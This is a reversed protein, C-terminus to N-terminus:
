LDPESKVLDIKPKSSLTRRANHPCCQAAQYSAKMSLCATTSSGCCSEAKYRAKIQTCSMPIEHQWVYLGCDIDSGIVTNETDGFAYVGWLGHWVVQIPDTENHTDFYGVEVPAVRDTIDFVRLGSVYNAQYLYNGVTMVNHTTAASESNLSVNVIEVNYLDTVNFVIIRSALGKSHQTSTDVNYMEDNLYAYQRSDDLWVQHSYVADPYGSQSLLVFNSKNTVDIVQLTGAFGTCAFAIQRGAYPGEEYTVVQADHVEGMGWGAVQPQAPTENLSYAIMGSTNVTLGDNSTKASIRYLFGSLADVAVNHTTDINQEFNQQTVLTAIGIDVQSLDIVALPVPMTAETVVYAYEGYTKVDYWYTQPSWLSSVVAGTQLNVVKIPHMDGGYCAVIAYKAGSSSTYGWLDSCGTANLVDM